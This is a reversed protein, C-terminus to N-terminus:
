CCRCPDLDARGLGGPRRDAPHIRIHRARRDPQGHCLVNHRHDGFGGGRAPSLHWFHCFGASRDARCLLRDPAAHWRDPRLGHGRPDVLGRGDIRRDSRHAALCAPIQAALGPDAPLPAPPETATRKQENRDYESEKNNTRQDPQMSGASCIPLPIGSHLTGYVTTLSKAPIIILLGFVSLLTVGGASVPAAAAEGRKGLWRAISILILPLLIAAVLVYPVAMTGAFNTLTILIAASVNRQATGLGMVTRVGPDRGGVAFGILLSGFIFLLLALFGRTGILSIVNALNLGLGVVLLILIGLSGIKNMTPAWNKATDPSHSKVLLGLILPILMLVILSQAIAGADVEVGTLLLPLVVPLYFITVVMLLTMVGVAVGLNAKAGRAELILFPAGACTALVMLGIKLSEELPIVLTIAYALLPVLVFNALLALVVLRANKLPQIIQALTLGLGMALMSCVIGLLGSIQAIITFLENATM